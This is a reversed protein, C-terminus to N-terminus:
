EVEQTEAERQARPVLLPHMPMAGAIRELIREFPRAADRHIMQVLAILHADFQSRDYPDAPAYRTTFSEVYAALTREDLDRRSREISETATLNEDM